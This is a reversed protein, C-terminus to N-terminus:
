PHEQRVPILVENRRLVIPTWPPDYYALIPEGVAVLHSAALMGQLRAIARAETESSRAGPFRLAAFKGGSIQSFFVTGDLPHPLADPAEGAPMIFGMTKAGSSSDMLVPTTMAIKEERDNGGSIFRFLKGFGSNAGGEMPANAVTLPPYDRLELGDEASLLRYRPTGTAARSTSWLWWAAAGAPIALSILLTATRRKM